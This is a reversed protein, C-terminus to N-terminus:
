DILELLIRTYKIGMLSAWTEMFREIFKRNARSFIKLSKPNSLKKCGIHWRLHLEIQKWISRTLPSRALIM